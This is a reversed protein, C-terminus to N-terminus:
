NKPKKGKMRKKPTLMAGRYAVKDTLQNTWRDTPRNTRQDMQGDGHQKTGSSSAGPQLKARTEKINGKRRKPCQDWSPWLGRM